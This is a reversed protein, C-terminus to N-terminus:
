KMESNRKIEGWCFDTQNQLTKLKVVDCMTNKPSRAADFKEFQMEIRLAFLFNNSLVQLKYM